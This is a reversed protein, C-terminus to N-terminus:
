DDLSVVTNPLLSLQKFRTIKKIYTKELIILSKLATQVIGEQEAVQESSFTESETTVASV